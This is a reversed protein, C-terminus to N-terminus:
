LQPAMAEDAPVCHQANRFVDDLWLFQFHTTIGVTNPMELVSHAAM